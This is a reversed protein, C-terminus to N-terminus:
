YVNNLPLLAVIFHVLICPIPTAATTIYYYLPIPCLTDTGRGFLCNPTADHTHCSLADDLFDAGRTMKSQQMNPTSPSSGKQAVHDQLNAKSCLVRWKGQIM